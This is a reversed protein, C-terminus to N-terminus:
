AQSEVYRRRQPLRQEGVIQDFAQALAGTLVRREFRQIFKHDSHVLAAGSKWASYARDLMRAMGSADAPRCLLAAGSRELYDRADGDPVAALIPRGSALYEYTKGPVIRSRTGPPLDHMPLFLLNATRMLDLTEQHSLYGTFRVMGAARSHSALDRDEQSTQGAFLLELNGAADPREACWREVAELLVAHSRTLINVGPMAGGLLLSKKRTRLRLGNDTHLYGAHVIRFTGDRRLVPPRVFDEEDFGNTITIVDKKRLSPFATRLAATSEPTNMIILAASSLLREMKWMDARRHLLSPYIQMEDLAWPDRLDAVWAVGLERSLTRAVEGSEFPSM